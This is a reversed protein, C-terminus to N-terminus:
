FSFTTRIAGIIASDNTDAGPDEIWIVSPTLSIGDIVQIKYFGEVLFAENDDKSSRLPMGALFGLNNGEAGFDPLLLTAQWSWFEESGTGGQQDADAYAVGGGVEFGDFKVNFQGGLVFAETPNAGIGGAAVGASQDLGGGNYVNAGYLGIDIFDSLWTLQANADYNGNFLAAGDNVEQDEGSYGLDLSLNDTIQFIAGFGLDGPAFDYQAPGGFDSITGSSASDVPSITSSVWDDGSQSQFGVKAFIWDSVPFEYYLDDLQVNGDSDGGFSYGGEADLSGPANVDRAQLRARLRDDGTFSTDFNLRVRYGLGVQDTGAFAAPGDLEGGLLAITQGKLKTTTSFQNAELEATRTELSDVRGRLTALEAEFEGTLNGLGDPVEGGDSIVELVRDLCSNLLAAAEYRTMARNGRFSGDPYGAVCGYREVLSQLATYAWDTPRVDSFQTISTVQSLGAESDTSYESIEELVSTDLDEAPLEALELPAEIAIEEAIIEEAAQLDEAIETGVVAETASASVAFVAGLAAPAILLSKWLIKSM